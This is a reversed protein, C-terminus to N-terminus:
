KKLNHCTKKFKSSNDVQGDLTFLHAIRVNYNTYKLHEYKGINNKLIRGINNKTKLAV